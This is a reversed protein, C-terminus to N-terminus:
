GKEDDLNKKWKSHKLFNTNVCSTIRAICSSTTLLPDIVFSFSTFAPHSTNHSTYVIHNWPCLSPSVVLFLLLIHCIVMFLACQSDQWVSLLWVKDTGSIGNLPLLTQLRTSHHTTDFAASLDLVTLVLFKAVTSPLCFESTVTILTTETSDFPQYTSQAIPFSVNDAAKSIFSLNSVPRHKRSVNVELM